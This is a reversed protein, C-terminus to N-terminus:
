LNIFNQLIIKGCDTMISEPHFQVGYINLFKHQMAMIKNQEDVVTIDFSSTDSTDDVAWSHYRGAYFQDEVGSFLPSIKTTKIMLTRKGHFVQDLNILKAGYVEAIAQHGLCVGLLKKNEGFKKIVKKLDGAEDPVGPGPSLIIHSCSELYEYKVQDNRMVEVDEKLLDNIIHVLNYTFSDYNDIIAIKM